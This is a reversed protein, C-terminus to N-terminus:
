AYLAIGFEASASSGTGTVTVPTCLPMNAAWGAGLAANIDFGNPKTVISFNDTVACGRGIETDPQVDWYEGAWPYLLRCQINPNVPASALTVRLHTADVRVCSVAQIIGGPSASDGGDMVAFGVGQSAM